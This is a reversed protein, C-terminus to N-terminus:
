YWGSAHNEKGSKLSIVTTFIADVFSFCATDNRIRLRIEKRANLQLKTLTFALIWWLSLWNVLSMLLKLGFIVIWIGSMHQYLGVTYRRARPAWASHRSFKDSFRLYERGTLTYKMAVNYQSTEWLTGEMRLWWKISILIIYVIICFCAYTSSLPQIYKCMNCSLDNLRLLIQIIRALAQSLHSPARSM